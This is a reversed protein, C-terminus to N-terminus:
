DGFELRFGQGRTRYSRYTKRSEPWFLRGVPYLVAGRSQRGRGFAAM